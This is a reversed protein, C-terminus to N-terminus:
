DRNAIAIAPVRELELLRSSRPTLFPREVIQYWVYAFPVGVVIGLLSGLLVHLPVTRVQGLLSIDLLRMIIFHWLYLSYSILGIFRLPKWSFPRTLWPLSLVAYVLAAYVLGFLFDGIMTHHLVPMVIVSVALVVAGTLASYGALATGRLVMMETLMRLCMGCAFVGLWYPLGSTGVVFTGIVPIRPANPFLTLLTADAISVLFLAGFFLTAAPWLGLRRVLPHLTSACLPLIAYFQVEVAMTWFVPNISDFLGPILNHLWVIHLAVNGATAFTPPALLLALIILTAWYAPAIRRLRRLYFTRASPQRDNRAIWRAYPQFLLFGSLVFFLHVGTHTYFIPIDGPATNGIDPFFFWAHAVITLLVALARLGDLAPVPTAAGNQPWFRRARLM